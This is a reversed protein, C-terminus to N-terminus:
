KVDRKILPLSIFFAVLLCIPVMLAVLKYDHLSYYRTHNVMKGDWGLDLLEGFGRQLLLGGFMALTNIFAVANGVAWPPCNNKAITFTLVQSSILLGFIFLLLLIIFYPLSTLYLIPLILLTALFATITMILIHRGTKDALWGVTPAGIALGFFIASSLTAAAHESFQHTRQFYSIGWLGAFVTTPMYMLSGTIGVLWMRLSKTIIFLETLVSKLTHHQMNPNNENLKVRLKFWLTVLLALGLIFIIVMTFRWGYHQVFLSLSVQGFAAGIFGISACIGSFLAFKNAPLLIAALRLAGVFAFASGLGQILRAIILILYNNAFVALLTGTICIALAISLVFRIRFHDVLIGVFPQMPTYTYFYAASITGFITADIHFSTTLAAHMVSPSVRILFEYFEFLAGLSVLFIASRKVTQM